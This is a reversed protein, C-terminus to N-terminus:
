FLLRLLVVLCRAVCFSCMLYAGAHQWLKGLLVFLQLKPDKAEDGFSLSYSASFQAPICADHLQETNIHLIDPCVVFPM